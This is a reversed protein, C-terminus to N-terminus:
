EETEEQMRARAAMESIITAIDAVDVVGDGNVDAAQQLPNTIELWSAMVDIISAIDAVDVRFDRNVDEKEYVNVTCTAIYGGDETNAVIVSFGYGVSIVKGRSVVCVSENSSTWKIDKNSADDPLVKASLEFSDGIGILTYTKYDLQIGTVPQIVTVKCSDKAEKNDQSVAKVWVEGAKQGTVNGKADVTAIQEDSSSWSITKDDATAPAIQAYLSETEGAKISLSHKELALAEVPQTVTVECTATYGGDVSTATITCTGRKNAIVIGKDNVSAITSNDSDYTVKGDSKLLPLTNANLTFTKDIPLTIKDVMEVGTTHEYVNVQCNAKYNGDKTTVIIMTTGFTLARLFVNESITAVEPNSSEWRVTQDTADEPIIQASLKIEDGVHLEKEGELSVGEVYIEEVLISTDWPVAMKYSDLSGKPIYVKTEQLIKYNSYDFVPPVSTKLHIETPPTCDARGFGGNNGYWVRYTNDIYEITEPFYFVVPKSYDSYAVYDTATMSYKKLSSPLVITDPNWSANHFAREGIEEVSQPLDIDSINHCGDLAFNGIYKLTNPFSISHAYNENEFGNGQLDSVRLGNEMISDVGERLIWHKARRSGYSPFNQTIIHCSESGVILTDCYVNNLCNDGAEISLPLSLKILEFDGDGFMNKPLDNSSTYVVNTLDISKLSKKMMGGIFRLDASNLFGTVTLSELTLQDGYEIKSSLWGPTQNDITLSTAQSFANMLSCLAAVIVMFVKKM